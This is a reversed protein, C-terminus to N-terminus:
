FYNKKEGSCTTGESIFGAYPAGNVINHTIQVNTCSNSSFCSMIGTPMDLNNELIEGDPDEDTVELERDLVGIVLNDSILSDSLSEIM